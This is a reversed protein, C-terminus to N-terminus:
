IKATWSVELNNKIKNIDTKAVSIENNIEEFYRQIKEKAENFQKETMKKARM